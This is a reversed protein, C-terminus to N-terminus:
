DTTERKKKRHRDQYKKMNDLAIYMEEFQSKVFEKRKNIVYKFIEYECQGLLVAQTVDFLHEANIIIGSITDLSNTESPQILIKDELDDLKSTIRLCIINNKHKSKFGQHQIILYPHGMFEKTFEDYHNVYVIQGPYCENWKM